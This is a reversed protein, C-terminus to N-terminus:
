KWRLRGATAKTAAALRSNDPPVYYRRTTEIDRHGLLQQVDALDAGRRSLEMGWTGRLAYPRVGKPWGAQRVRRAHRTRDYTGWANAAIFTKWAAQMEPTNLRLVRAIGGKATRISWLQHALAVDAPEARALEAPRAGTTALVLFRARTRRIELAVDVAKRRARYPRKAMQALRAAVAMITKPTVFIPTTQPPRPLQTLGDLPTPADPGDLARHLARLANVFHRITRAAYPRRIPQGDDDTGIARGTTQWTVIAARVDDLTLTHRPRDGYLVVWAQLDSRRTNWSVISQGLKQLYTKVDARLTGRAHVDPRRRALADLTVRITNRWRKIEVLPTDFPFRKTKRGGAGEVVAQMSYADAYVGKAIRKWTAM